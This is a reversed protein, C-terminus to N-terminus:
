VGSPNRLNIHPSSLFTRTILHPALNEYTQKHNRRTRRNLLILHKYCKMDSLIQNM